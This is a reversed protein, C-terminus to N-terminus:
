LTTRAAESPGEERGRQREPSSGSLEQDCRRLCSEASARCEAECEVPNRHESCASICANQQAECTAECPSQEDVQARSAGAVLALTCLSALGFWSIKTMGLSWPLQELRRGPLM